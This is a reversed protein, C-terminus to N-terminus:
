PLKAGEYVESACQHEMCRGPHPRLPPVGQEPIATTSNITPTFNITTPHHHYISPLPIITTPHHFYISTPLIITSHHSNSSPPSVIGLFCWIITSYHHHSPPIIITHHHFLSPTINSYHHHSPPIIITHNNFLHPTIAFHHRLAM